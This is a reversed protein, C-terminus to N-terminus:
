RWWFDSGFFLLIIAAYIWYNPKPRKSDSKKNKNEEAM